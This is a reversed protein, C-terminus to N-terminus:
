RNAFSATRVLLWVSVLGTVCAIGGHAWSFHFAALVVGLGMFVIAFCCVAILRGIREDFDERNLSDPQIRQSVRHRLLEASVLVSLLLLSSMVWFAVAAWVFWDTLAKSEDTILTALASLGFGILITTLVSITGLLRDDTRSPGPYGCHPCEDAHLHIRQRCGPCDVLSPQTSM